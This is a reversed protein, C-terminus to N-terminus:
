RLASASKRNTVELCHREKTGQALLCEPRIQSKDSFPSLRQGTGAAQGGSLRDLLGSMEGEAPENEPKIFDNSAKVLEGLGQM